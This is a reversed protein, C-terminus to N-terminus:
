DNDEIKQKRKEDGVSMETWFQDDDDRDILSTECVDCTEDHNLMGALTPTKCKKCPMVENENGWDM